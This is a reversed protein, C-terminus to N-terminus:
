WSEARAMIGTGVLSVSVVGSTPLTGVWVEDGGDFIGNRGRFIRFSEGSLPVSGVLEDGCITVVLVSDDLVADVFDEFDLVM